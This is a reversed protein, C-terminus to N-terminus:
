HLIVAGVAGLAIVLASTAVVPGVTRRDVHLLWLAASTMATLFFALVFTTTVV